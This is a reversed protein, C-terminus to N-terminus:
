LPSYAITQHEKTIETAPLGGAEDRVAVATADRPATMMLVAKVRERAATALALEKLTPVM